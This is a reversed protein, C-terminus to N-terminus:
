RSRKTQRLLAVLRDGFLPNFLAVIKEVRTIRLSRFSPEDIRLDDFLAARVDGDWKRGFTLIMKEILAKEPIAMFFSRHADIRVLSVGQDYLRSNLFRYTFRGLPTDYSKNRTCCISTVEEIREPILGHYALGYDLSVYSPGYILNALVEKSYPKPHYPSNIVYLGKKVRTLVGKRLLRSIRDRPKRHDTAIKNCLFVYDIEPIQVNEFLEIM